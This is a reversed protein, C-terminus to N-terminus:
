PLTQAEVSLVGPLDRVRNGGADSSCALGRVPFFFRSKLM